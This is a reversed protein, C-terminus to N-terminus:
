DDELVEFEADEIEEEASILNAKRANKTLEVAGMSDAIAVGVRQMIDVSGKVDVTVETKKTTDKEGRIDRRESRSTKIVNTLAVLDKPELRGEDRGEKVAEYHEHLMKEVLNEVTSLMRDHHQGLDLGQRKAIASAKRWRKFEHDARLEDWGFQVAWKEITDPRVAILKTIQKPSKGQKVYYKEAMQLQVMSHAKYNGQLELQQLLSKPEDEELTKVEFTLKETAPDKKRRKLAMLLSGGHVWIYGM